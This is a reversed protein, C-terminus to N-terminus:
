YLRKPRLRFKPRYMLMVRQLSDKYYRTARRQVSPQEDWEAYYVVALWMILDSFQSPLGKPVDSWLALEQALRSFSFKLTFPVDPHPFLRWRGTNDETIFQPTSPVISLSNFRLDFEHWPMFPLVINSSPSENSRNIIRFSTPDIEMIENQFDDAANEESFDFSKWSHLYANTPTLEYTSNGQFEGSASGAIQPTPPDAVNTVPENYFYIFYDGSDIADIIEQSFTTYTFGTTGKSTDDTDPDFGTITISNNIATRTAGADTITMVSLVDGVEIGNAYFYPLQPGVSVTYIRGTLYFYDGGAKYSNAFPTTDTNLDVYGYSKGQINSFASSTLDTLGKIPVASTVIADDTGYIDITSNIVGPIEGESYFMMGPNITVTGQNNLFEWDFAMQQIDRWARSVWTKFKRMMPDTQTIFDAGGSDYTALDIGAETIADNVIDVYTGAM